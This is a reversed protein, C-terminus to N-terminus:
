YENKLKNYVNKIGQELGIFNLGLDIFEGNFPEGFKWNHIKISVKHNELGNIIEAVNYLTTTHNYCCEITKPLNDQVICYKILTIFDEMYFFDM